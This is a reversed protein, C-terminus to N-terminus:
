GAGLDFGCALAGGEEFAGAGEKGAVAGGAEVGAEVGGEHADGEGVEHVVVVVLPRARGEELRAGGRV